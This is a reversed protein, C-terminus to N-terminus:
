GWIGLLEYNTDNIDTNVFISKSTFYKKAFDIVWKRNEYYSNISGIFCFDYIKDHNLENIENSLKNKSSIEASVNKPLDVM